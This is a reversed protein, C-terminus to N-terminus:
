HKNFSYSFSLSAVYISEYGRDEEGSASAWARALLINKLRGM